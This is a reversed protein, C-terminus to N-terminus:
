RHAVVTFFRQTSPPDVDLKQDHRTVESTGFGLVELFQTVLEPTLAWWRDVNQNERTPYLRAAPGSLGADDLDTVVVTDARRAGAELVDLPARCHLLVSAMVAVDFHGLADPLHAGHGYHVQASLGFREHVLWWANRLQEMENRVRAATEDADIGAQPVLDLPEDPDTDVAVVTAGARELTMTLFGSAPGIELVRRGAVDVNGLYEAEHGRLDWWGRVLGHGPIEMTTYFRGCDELQVGTRAPAYLEDRASV